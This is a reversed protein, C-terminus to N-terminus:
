WARGQKKLRFWTRNQIISPSPRTDVEGTQSSRCSVSAWPCEVADRWDVPFTSAQKRAAGCIVGCTGHVSVPRRDDICTVRPSSGGIVRGAKSGQLWRARHMDRMTTTSFSRRASRRISAHIASWSGDGRSTREDPKFGTVLPAKSAVRRSPQRVHRVQSARASRGAACLRRHQGRCAEALGRASLTPRRESKRLSLGRLM